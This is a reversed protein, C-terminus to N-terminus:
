RDCAFRGGFHDVREDKFQGSVPDGDRHRAPDELDSALGIVPPKRARDRFAFPVLGKQGVGDEIRMTVIGLEAIPEEGVLDSVGAELHAFAGHPLDARGIAPPGNEALLFGALAGLRVGRSVVIEHVSVETGILGIAEPEGVDGFV